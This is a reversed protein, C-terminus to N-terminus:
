GWCQNPTHYLHSVRPWFLFGLPLFWNKIVKWAESNNNKQPQSISPLNYLQKAFWVWKARCTESRPKRKPSPYGGAWHSTLSTQKGRSLMHRSAPRDLSLLHQQYVHVCANECMCVCRVPFALSTHAAVTDPRQHEWCSMSFVGLKRGSSVIQERSVTHSCTHANTRAFAFM